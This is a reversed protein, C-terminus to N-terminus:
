RPATRPSPPRAWARLAIRQPARRPGATRRLPEVPTTTGQTLAVQTPAVRRHHRRARARSPLVRRTPAVSLPVIPRRRSTSLRRIRQRTTRRGTRLQPPWSVLSRLVQSVPPGLAPPARARTRPPSTRAVTDSRSPEAASARETRQTVGDDPEHSDGPDTQGAGSQGGAAEAGSPSGGIGAKRIDVM